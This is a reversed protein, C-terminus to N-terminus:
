GPPKRPGLLAEFIAHMTRTNQESIERGLAMMDTLRDAAEEGPTPQGDKPPPQTAMLDRLYAAWAEGAAGMGGAGPVSKDKLAAAFAASMGGILEATLPPLLQRMTEGSLGSARAAQEAVAARMEPSGFMAAAAETGAGEARFMPNAQWARALGAMAQPDAFGRRLAEGYAPLLAAAAAEIQARSLGFRAALEDFARGNPGAMMDYLTFV